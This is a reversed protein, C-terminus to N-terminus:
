NASGSGMIQSFLVSYFNDTFNSNTMIANSLDNQAAVSALYDYFAPLSSQLSTSVEDEGVKTVIYGTSGAAQPALVTGPESTYLASLYASDAAATNLLGYTDSYAFSGMMTSSAPNAPTSLVSEEVYGNNDLADSFNVEAEAYFENAKTEAYAKIREADLVAIQNKIKNMVTSDSTDAMAPASDVRFISYGYATSFPGVYSGESSSFITNVNEESYITNQIEYFMKAGMAGNASKYSDTSSETVAEDFSKVGDTLEKLISTAEEETAVSLISLSISTFPQPNSNVYNVAEEDPYSTADFPVYDFSRGTAAMTAVFEQEAKSSLVTSIDSTVQVAPVNEAASEYVMQRSASPTSEYISQDFQGDTNNYVGSSLIYDNVAKDIAIIGAKKAMQDLATHFVTTYYAQYWLSYVDMSSGYSQSLNALQNYFYNGYKYEIKEGNYKGFEISDKAFISSVGTAPLVFTISILILVIVGAWWVFSKKSKNEKKVAVAKEKATSKKPDKGFEVNKDEKDAM